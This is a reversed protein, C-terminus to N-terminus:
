GPDSYCIMFISRWNFVTNYFVINSIFKCYISYCIVIQYLFISFIILSMKYIILLIIEVKRFSTAGNIGTLICYSRIDINSTSFPWLTWM